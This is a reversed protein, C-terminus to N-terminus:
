WGGILHVCWLIFCWFAALSLLTSADFPHRNRPLYSMLTLTGRVQAPGRDAYFTEVDPLPYPDSERSPRSYHQSM